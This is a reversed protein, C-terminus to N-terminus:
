QRYLPCGMKVPEGSALPPEPYEEYKYILEEPDGILWDGNTLRMSIVLGPDEEWYDLFEVETEAM